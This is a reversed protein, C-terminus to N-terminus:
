EHKGNVVEQAFRHAVTAIGRETLLKDVVRSYQRFKWIFEVRTHPDRKAFGQAYVRVFGYSTAVTGTVYFREGDRYQYHLQAGRYIARNEIRTEDTM